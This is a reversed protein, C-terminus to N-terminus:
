GMKHAAPLRPRRGPAFGCQLTIGDIGWGATNPSDDKILLKAATNQQMQIPVPAEIRYGHPTQIASSALARTTITTGYDAVMELTITNTGFLRGLLTVVWIRMYGSLQALSLWALEIVAQYTAGNETFVSGTIPEEKLVTAGVLYHQANAHMVASLASQGTFTLWQSNQMDYVQTNGTVSNFFRAHQQNPEYLADTIAGGAKTLDAIPRGIFRSELGLTLLWIGNDPAQYMVGEDTLLVSNPNTCGPVGDVRVPESFGGNGDDGPGDGTIYYIADRKFFVFREGLAAFAYLQGFADEITGQFDDNFEPGFDPKILKSFCYGALNEELLGWLRNKWVTLQSVNPWPANELVAGNQTYEQEGLSFYANNDVFQVAGVTSVGIQSALTQYFYLPANAGANPLSRFIMISVRRDLIKYGPINMLIQAQGATLTYSVTPSLASINLKGQADVFAYLYAYQYTASATLTGGGSGSLGRPPDPSYAFGLEPINPNGAINNSDGSYVTPFGGPFTLSGGATVPRADYNYNEFSLLYADRKPSSPTSNAGMRFCAITAVQGSTQPQPLRGSRAPRFVIANTGVELTDTSLVGAAGPFARACMAGGYETSPEWVFYTPSTPSAYSLLIRYKGAVTQWPRSALGFGFMFGIVNSVVGGSTRRFWSLYRDAGTRGHSAATPYAPGDSRGTVFVEATAASTVYGTVSLFGEAGTGYPDRSTGLVIDTVGLSAGCAATHLAVANRGTVTCSAVSGVYWLATTTMNLFGFATGGVDGTATTAIDPGNNTQVITLTSVNYEIIRVRSGSVAGAVKYVIGLITSSGPLLMCDYAGSLGNVDLGTFLATSVTATVGSLQVASPLSIPTKALKLTGSTTENVSVSCTTEVWVVVIDTGVVYISPRTPIPGNPTGIGVFAGAVGFHGMQARTVSDYVDCYINAYRVDFSGQSETAEYVHWDYGGARVFDHSRQDNVNVAPIAPGTKMHQRQASYRTQWSSGSGPNVGALTTTATTTDTAVVVLEGDFSAIRRETGAIGTAVAVSSGPRRRLEGVSDMVVNEARTITGPTALLPSTKGDRKGLLVQVNEPRLGSM